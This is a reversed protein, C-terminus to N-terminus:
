CTRKLLYLPCTTTSTTHDNKRRSTSSLICGITLQFSVAVAVARALGWGRWRWCQVQSHAQGETRINSSSPKAERRGASSVVDLDFALAMDWAFVGEHEERNMMAEDLKLGSRGEYLVALGGEDFDASKGEDFAAWGGKMLDNMRGEDLAVMREEDFEAM